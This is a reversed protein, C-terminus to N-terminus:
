IDAKSGRRAESTERESRRDRSKSRDGPEKGTALRAVRVHDLSEIPIRREDPHAGQMEDADMLVAAFRVGSATTIEELAVQFTTFKGASFKEIGFEAIAQSQDLIFGFARLVPHSNNVKEAVFVVKWFRRPIQMPGGGFDHHIDHQNDLIPGGFVCMKNGVNPAQSQIQNELGGWLGHFGFV